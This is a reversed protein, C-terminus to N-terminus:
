VLIIEKWVLGECLAEHLDHMEISGVAVREAWEGHWEILMVMYKWREEFDERGREAREDRGECLLIFKHEGPVHGSRWSETTFVIGLEHLSRGFIAVRSRTNEPGDDKATSTPTDLRFTVSVTWFQLLGSRPSPNLTDSYYKPDNVLKRPTPGTKTCDFPFRYQITGGYFNRPSSAFAKDHTWVLSCEVSDHAM